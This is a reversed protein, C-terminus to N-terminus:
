NDPRIINPPDDRRDTGKDPPFNEHFSLGGDALSIGLSELNLPRGKRKFESRAGHGLKNRFEHLAVRGLAVLCVLLALGLAVNTVM